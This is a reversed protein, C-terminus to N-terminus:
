SQSMYFFRTSGHMVFTSAFDEVTAICLRLDADGTWLTNVIEEWFVEGALHIYTHRAEQM